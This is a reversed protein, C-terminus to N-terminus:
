KDNHEGCNKIAKLQLIENEKEVIKKWKPRVQIPMPVTEIHIGNLIMFYEKM